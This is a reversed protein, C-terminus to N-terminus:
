PNVTGNEPNAGASPNTVKAGGNSSKISGDDKM